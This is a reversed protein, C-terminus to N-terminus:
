SSLIILCSFFVAFKRNARFTVNNNKYFLNQNCTYKFKDFNRNKLDNNISMDPQMSSTRRM